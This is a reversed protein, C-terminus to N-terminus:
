ILGLEALVVDAGRKDLIRQGKSSVLLSIHRNKSPVWIRRKALNPRFVRRVKNHAHSVNNGAVTRKGTIACVRPM